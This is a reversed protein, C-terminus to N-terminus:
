QHQNVYAEVSDLIDADLGTFVGTLDGLHGLFGTMSLGKAAEAGASAAQVAGETSEAAARAASDLAMGAGGAIVSALGLGFGVCAEASQDHGFCGVADVATSAAGLAISGYGLVTAAMDAGAVTAAFAGGAAVVAIGGAVLGVVDLM